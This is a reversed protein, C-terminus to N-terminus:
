LRAIDTGRVSSSDPRSRRPRDSDLPHANLASFFKQDIGISPTNRRMAWSPGRVSMGELHLM